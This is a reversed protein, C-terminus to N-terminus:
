SVFRFQSVVTVGDQKEGRAVVHLLGDPLPRQLALAESVPASLWMECEEATTLLM